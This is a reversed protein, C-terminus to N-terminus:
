RVVGSRLHVLTSTDVGTIGTKVSVERWPPSKGISSSTKVRAAGFLTTRVDCTVCLALNRALLTSSEQRVSRRAFCRQWTVQNLAPMMSEDDLECQALPPRALAHLRTPRQYPLERLRECRKKVVLHSPAERVSCM